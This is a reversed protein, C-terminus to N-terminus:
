LVEGWNEGILLAEPELDYGSDAKVTERIHRVLQIVDSSTAGGRNIIFNAHVPSVEAGGIRHGKLGAADILRGAHEGDPNKFICGASPERPQTKRRREAYAAIQERIESTEAPSAPQLVAELAVAGRLQPCDRYSSQLQDAHLTEVDGKPTAVTISVVRDFMWGGMAGANMRLAGGVSGPIGELFEFGALGHNAAYGCLEKLRAGAGVRLSGDERAVIQRWRPHRLSLVLGDFGSDAVVLNSGRGLIMWPIGECRCLTLLEGVDTDAAPEAFYRACGGVRLTTKPGLPEALRLTAQPSLVPAWNRLRRWDRAFGAAAEGIDGAGAFLLLGTRTPAKLADYLHYLPEVAKSAWETAACFDMVPWGGPGAISESTGGEQPPESAAYVPTLAVADAPRLARTFDEAFQRTRSPRHPQFVVVLVDAQPRLEALLARLETPHHAYDSMIVLREDRYLTEQRRFVGRFGAPLNSADPAPRGTIRASAATALSGNQANFGCAPATVVLAKDVPVLARLRRCDAPVMVASSREFLRQFSTSLEAETRYFDAHDWDFNVAVTLEPSFHEITGDSEDVEAVLWRSTASHAAPPIQEDRFFGGLIYSADFGQERLLHILMAATTTKGHSGTVAVLRSNTAVAALLEGRRIIPLGRRRAAECMPHELPVATSRVLCQAEAPLATERNVNFRKLIARVRPHAPADDTGSVDYGAQALYVALPAMGMGHIGVFFYRQHALQIM